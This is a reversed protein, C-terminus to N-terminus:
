SRHELALQEFGMRLVHGCRRIFTISRSILRQAEFM